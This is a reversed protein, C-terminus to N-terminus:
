FRVSRNRVCLLSERVIPEILVSVTTIAEDPAAEAVPEYLEGLGDERGFIGLGDLEAGDTGM